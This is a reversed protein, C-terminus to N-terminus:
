IFPQKCCRKMEKHQQTDFSVEAIEFRTFQFNWQFINLAAIFCSLGTLCMNLELDASYVFLICKERGCM